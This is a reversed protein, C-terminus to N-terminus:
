PPMIKMVDEGLYFESSNGKYFVLWLKKGQVLMIKKENILFFNHLLRRIDTMSFPNVGLMHDASHVRSITLWM